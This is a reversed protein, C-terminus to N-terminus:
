ERNSDMLCEPLKRKSKREGQPIAESLQKVCSAISFTTIFNKNFITGLQNRRLDIIAVNRAEKPVRRWIYDHIIKYIQQLKMRRGKNRSILRENKLFQLLKPKVKIIAKNEEIQREEQIEQMSQDMCENERTNLFNMAEIERSALELNTVKEQGIRKQLLREIKVRLQSVHLAKTGFIEELDRNLTIFCPDLADWLKEEDLIEKVALIITSLRYTTVTPTILDNKRRALYPHLGTFPIFARLSSQNNM